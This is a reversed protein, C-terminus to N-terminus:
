CFPIPVADVFWINLFIEFESSFFLLHIGPLCHQPRRIRIMKSLQIRIWMLHFAPDPVPDADADFPFLPLRLPDNQLMPLDLDPSFHTNPDPYANFQFTPEPCRMSTIRIRLVAPLM